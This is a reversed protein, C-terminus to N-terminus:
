HLLLMFPMGPVRTDKIGQEKVKLTAQMSDGRLTEFLCFSSVLTLGLSRVPKQGLLVGFFIVRELPPLM